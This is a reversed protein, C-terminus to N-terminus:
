QPFIDKFVAQWRALQATDFFDPPTMRVKYHGGEPTYTPDSPPAGPHASFYGERVFIKQGEESLVFDMLLKGANPHPANATMATISATSPVPEIPIWVIPAGKQASILVHHNWAQLSIAYEGAMTQDLIQRTSSLSAVVDQKALRRLYDMGKDQGMVALANGVFSAATGIDPATSWVMKGKWKPDLLDDFSKPRQALPVQDANVAISIYTVHNAGWYGEPDVYGTPYAKASEPLWKAVLGAHKLPQLASNGDFVDAQPSGARTEDMIRRVIDSSNQRLYDVKVGPYKAEFAAALPRLSQDVILTSYWVVKGERRAAEVVASDAGRAPAAAAAFLLAAALRASRM